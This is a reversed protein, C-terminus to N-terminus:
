GGTGGNYGNPLVEVGIKGYSDDESIVRTEGGTKVPTSTAHTGFAMIVSIVSLIITVILLIVVVKEREVM